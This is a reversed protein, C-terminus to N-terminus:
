SSSEEPSQMPCAKRRILPLGDVLVPHRDPLQGISKIRVGLATRPASVMVLANTRTQELMDVLRKVRKVDLSGVFVNASPELLANRCVGRVLASPQQLFLAVMAM